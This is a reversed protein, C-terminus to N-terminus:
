IPMKKLLRQTYKNNEALFLENEQLTLCDFFSEWNLIVNIFTLQNTVNLINALHKFKAGLKASAM